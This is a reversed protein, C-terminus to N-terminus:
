RTLATIVAAKESATLNVYGGDTMAQIAGQASQIDLGGRSVESQSHCGSGSCKRILIGTGSASASPSKKAAKAVPRDAPRDAPKAPPKRASNKAPTSAASATVGPGPTKTDDIKASPASTAPTSVPEKLEAAAGIREVSTSDAGRNERAMAVSLGAVLLLTGVVSLSLAFVASRRRQSRLRLDRDLRRALREAADERSRDEFGETAYSM